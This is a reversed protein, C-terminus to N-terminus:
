WGALASEVGKPLLQREEAAESRSRRGKMRHWLSSCPVDYFKAITSLVPAKGLEKQDEVKWIALELREEKTWERDPSLPRSDFPCLDSLNSM